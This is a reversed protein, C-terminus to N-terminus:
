SFVHENSTARDQSAPAGKIGVDRDCMVSGIEGDINWSLKNKYTNLGPYWVAAKKWIDRSCLKRTMHSIMYCDNFQFEYSLFSNEM